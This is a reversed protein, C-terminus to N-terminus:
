KIHQQLLLDYIAIHTMAQIVPIIRNIITVDHRGNINLPSIKNTQQNLSYQEQMLSSIPKCTTTIVIDEGNSIGGNIGGNYNYLTQVKGNIIQLIEDKVESGTHQMFNQGLGFEVSKVSGISYLLSSITSEVSHFYPEGIALPPNLVITELQGGLTDGNQQAQQITETLSTSLEKNWVPLNATNSKITQHLQQIIQNVEHLLDDQELTDMFLQADLQTAQPFKDHLLQRRLDYYNTDKIQQVQKIHSHISYNPNTEQILQEAFAGIFVLPTTLRGSFHGGGRYDHNNQYKLQATYDAHGPRPHQRLHQYDASHQTTNPFIITLPTGTTQNQFLGSIIQYDNKETRKTNFSAHGSRQQLARDIRDLDLTKGAPIGQVTIGIAPGHSEGFLTIELATGFRSKM